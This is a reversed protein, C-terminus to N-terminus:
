RAWSGPSSTLMATPPTTQTGSPALGTQDYNASMFLDSGFVSVSGGLALPHLLFKFM